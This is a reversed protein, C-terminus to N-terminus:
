KATFLTMHKILLGYIGLVEDEFGIFVNLYVINIKYRPLILLILVVNFAFWKYKETLLEYM